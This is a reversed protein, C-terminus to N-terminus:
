AVVTIIPECPGGGRQFMKTIMLDLDELLDVLVLGLEEEGEAGIVAIYKEAAVLALEHVDILGNVVSRMFEPLTGAVNSKEAETILRDSVKLANYSREELQTRANPRYITLPNRGACGMLLVLILIPPLAGFIPPVIFLRPERM